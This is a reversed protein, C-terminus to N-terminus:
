KLTFLIAAPSLLTLVCGALNRAYRQGNASLFSFLGPIVETCHLENSAVAYPQAAYLCVLVPPSGALLM